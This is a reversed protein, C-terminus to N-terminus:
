RKTTSRAPSGRQCCGFVAAASPPTAFVRSATTTAATRTTAPAAAAATRPPGPPCRLSPRRRPVQQRQWATPHQVALSPGQPVPAGLAAAASSAQRVWPEVLARNTRLRLWEVHIAARGPQQPGGCRAPGQICLHLLGSPGGGRPPFQADLQMTEAALSAGRFIVGLYQGSVGSAGVEEVEFIATGTIGWAADLTPLEVNM